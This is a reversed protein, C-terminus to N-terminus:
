RKYRHCWDDENKKAPNQYFTAALKGIQNKLDPISIMPVGNQWVMAFQLGETLVACAGKNIAETIFQRGDFQASGLAVFLDNQRVLRSDLVLDSIIIEHPFSLPPFEALLRLLNM